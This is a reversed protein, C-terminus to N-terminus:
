KTRTELATLREAHQRLIAHLDNSFTLFQGSLRDFGDDLKRNQFDLGREPGMERCMNIFKPIVSSEGEVFVALPKLAVPQEARAIAASCLLM